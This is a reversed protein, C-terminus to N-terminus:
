IRMRFEFEGTIVGSLANAVVVSTAAAYYVRITGFSTSQDTTVLWSDGVQTDSSSTLVGPPTRWKFHQAKTNVNNIAGGTIIPPMFLLRQADDAMALVSTAAATYLTYSVGALLCGTNSPSTGAVAAAVGTTFHYDGGLMKYEDFIQAFPTFDAFLSATLAQTGNVVGTTVTSTFTQLEALRVRVPKMGYASQVAQKLQLIQVEILKLEADLPTMTAGKSDVSVYKLDFASKEALLRKRREMLPVGIAKVEAVGLSPRVVRKVSHVHKGPKAGEKVPHKGEIKAHSM